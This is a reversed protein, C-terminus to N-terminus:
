IQKWSQYFKIGSFTGWGCAPNKNSKNEPNYLGTRIDGVEVGVRNLEWILGGNEGTVDEIVVKVPISKIESM